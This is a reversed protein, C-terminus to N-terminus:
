IYLIYIYIYVISLIKRIERSGVYPIAHTHRLPVIKVFPFMTPLGLDFEPILVEQYLLGRYQYWAKSRSLETGDM